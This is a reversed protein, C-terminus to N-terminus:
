NSQPTHSRGPGPISGTDRANAPLNRDVPGGPFDLVREKLKHLLFNYLGLEELWQITNTNGKNRLAFSMGYERINISHELYM